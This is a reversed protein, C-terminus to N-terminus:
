ILMRLVPLFREIVRIRVCLVANYGFFVWSDFIINGGSRFVGFFWKEGVAPQIQKVRGGKYKIVRGKM